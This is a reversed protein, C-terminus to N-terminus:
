WAGKRCLGRMECWECVAQVGNAPLPAGGAIARLTAVIRAELKAQWAEFDAAQADGARERTLELAVYVGAQVPLDSLLGYFALQHDEGQRLKDRLAPVGRTKYDLVAREGQANEDIRDVYGHLTIQGDDWVLTKEFHQEGLAFRWGQAERANAWELYAPMAKQWRVYYGLAAGGQALAEAFVRDSIERLLAPRADNDVRRERLTEHYRRLIAHLWEGYDRKEPLDSLEDLADLRLMRGAFFQYPCAVLSNWASASLRRPLLQPAVPAPQRAPTPRLSAMAISAPHRPLPGLGSRECALELREIWQSPANQEGDRTAQWSLVAVPTNALLAALDRLQQRQMQDRTLLGLERRVGDGFFLTEGVRSPLHAADAGVMLVADFGRLRAGNLQLMVVRRDGGEPVFPAAELQLGLFARWEALSFQQAMGACDQTLMDLLDILQAGAADAELAARMGLRALADGTARGWQELTRRGTLGRAQEAVQALLARAEPARDLAALAAQWGGQVNRRRLALEIEMVRGAKDAREALLCPAKLLDLLALTDADSAAVELLADLAAASRTTSLRWGTEDAVFVGARELLARVRRATVRDQAILAIRERGERLWDIVTGAAHRAEAELGHAAHLLVAPAARPPPMDGAPEEPLEPWAEALLPPVADARWDLAVARVPRRRAYANLFAQQLPDPRTAQVWMLPAEAQEALAMMQGHAAAVPDRGDLQSKWLTWVLQAEDSLLTRMPPPLQALAAQWRSDAAGADGQLVPLLAASLEDFLGLLTQALPLLDTNRRASFLKKLWGHQRLEAYLSMMREGRSAEAGPPPQQALWAAPTVIRPPILPRGAERALAEKLARAHVFAPVLVRIASLDCGDRRGCALAPADLLMRAVRPWFGPGPAILIPDNSM